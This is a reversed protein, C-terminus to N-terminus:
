VRLELNIYKENSITIKNHEGHNLNGNYGFIDIYEDMYKTLYGSLIIFYHAFLFGFILDISYHAHTVLMTFSQMFCVFIGFNSFKIYGFERLYYTLILACGCHGSYFFDPTREFNVSISYFGPFNFIFISPFQLLILKQVIAGRFLYFLTLTLHPKWSNGQKIFIMFFSVLSVDLISSSFIVLLDRYILNQSLFITLKGFIVEQVNDRFCILTKDEEKENFIIFIRNILWLFLAAFVVILKISKSKVYSNTYIRNEILVQKIWKEEFDRSSHINLFNM